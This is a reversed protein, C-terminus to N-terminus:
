AEMREIAKVAVLDWEFGDDGLHGAQLFAACKRDEQSAVSEFAAVVGGDIGTVKFHEVRGPEDGGGRGKGFAELRLHSDLLRGLEVEGGLGVKFEQAQAADYAHLVQGAVQNAPVERAADGDQ